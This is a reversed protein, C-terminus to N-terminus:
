RRPPLMDPRITVLQNSKMNVLRPQISNNPDSSAYFVQGDQTIIELVSMDLYILQKVSKIGKEPDFRFVADPKQNQVLDALPISYVRKTRALVGDEGGTRYYNWSKTLDRSEITPYKRAIWAYSAWLKSQKDALDEGYLQVMMRRGTGHGLEQTRNWLDGKTFCVATTFGKAYDILVLAIKTLEEATANSPIDIKRADIVGPLMGALASSLCTQIAYQTLVNTNKRVKLFTQPEM